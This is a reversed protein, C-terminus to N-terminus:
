LGRNLFTGPRRPSAERPCVGLPGSIEQVVDLSQCLGGLSFAKVEGLSDTHIGFVARLISSITGLPRQLGGPYEGFVEQFSNPSKKLFNGLFGLSQGFFAHLLSGQSICLGGPFSGPFRRSIELSQLGERSVPLFSPSRSFSAQLGVLSGGFVATQEKKDLISHCM